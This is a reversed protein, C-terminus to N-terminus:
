AAASAQRAADFRWRVPEDERVAPRTTAVDRRAPGVLPVFQAALDTQVEAGALFRITAGIGLSILLALALGALTIFTDMGTMTDAGDSRRWRRLNGVSHVNSSEGAGVIPSRWRFGGARAGVYVFRPLVGMRVSVLLFEM